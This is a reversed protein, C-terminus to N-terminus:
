DEQAFLGRMASVTMCVGGVICVAAVTGIVLTAIRWGISLDWWVSTM